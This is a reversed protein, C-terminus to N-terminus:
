KAAIKGIDTLHKIYNVRKFPCKITDALQEKSLRLQKRFKDEIRLPGKGKPVATTLIIAGDYVLKFFQEKGQREELELKRVVKLAEQKTIM